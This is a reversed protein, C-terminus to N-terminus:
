AATADAPAEPQPAQDEKAEGEAPATEGGEAPPAVEGGEAPAASEAAPAEAKAKQEWEDVVGDGNSDTGIRDISGNEFYEWTDTRGDGSRDSEILTLTGGTYKKIIDSRGDYNLDIERRLIVGDHYHAIEDNRGDFDLDTHEEVLQQALDFLQIVDVRGDHNLDVEKRMLLDTEQGSKSPDPGRTFFKFVDAQEDRNLDFQRIEWGNTKALSVRAEASTAVEAAPAALPSRKTQNTKTGGCAPLLLATGLICVLPRIKM